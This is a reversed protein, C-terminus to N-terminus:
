NNVKLNDRGWVLPMNGKNETGDPNKAKYITDDCLVIWRFNNKTEAKSITSVILKEVKGAGSSSNAVYINNEDVGVVIGVHTWDKKENKIGNSYYTRTGYSLVIDGPEVIDVVNTIPHARTHSYNLATQMKGPLSGPDKTYKNTVPGGAGKGEELVGGNIFAWSVFASCDMGCMYKKGKKYVKGYASVDKSLKVRTGWNRNLGIKLYDSANTDYPTGRYPVAYDLSALYLAAEVAGARTGFGAKEVREKLETEMRDWDEDTYSIETMKPKNEGFDEPNYDSYVYTTDGIKVSDGVKLAGDDKQESNLDEKETVEKAPLKIDWGANVQMIILADIEDIKGDENVDANKLGQETINKNEQKSLYGLLLLYDESDIKRDENVDGYVTKLTDEPKEVVDSKIEKVLRQIIVAAEARTVTDKPMYNNDSKGNVLGITKLAYVANKAWDAIETDDAFKTNDNTTGQLLGKHTANIYNYIIVAMAERTIKADPDFKGDGIGNVIGNAGAWNISEKYYADDKVDDFINVFNEVDAKDLRALVTVVMGRTVAGDPSFTNDSTGNFIGDEVADNVDDEYWSDEEVDEFKPPKEENEEDKLAPNEKIIIMIEDQPIAQGAETQKFNMDIVRIKIGQECVKKAELKGTFKEIEAVGNEGSVIEFLLNVKANNPTIKVKEGLKVLEGVKITLKDSTFELKKLVVEEAKKTFGCECEGKTNLKHSETIAYKAKCVKCEMLKTHQKDSDSKILLVNGTHKEEKGIAVKVNCEKCIRISKHMSASTEYRAEILKEHGKLPKLEMCKEVPKEPDEIVMFIAVDQKQTESDIVRIEIGKEYVAKAKLRGTNMDLDVKQKIIELKASDKEVFEIILKANVEKPTVSVKQKLEWIEDVKIEYKNNEKTNENVWELKEVKAPEQPTVPDQPKPEQKNKNYGCYVCMNDVFTHEKEVDYDCKKCTVKHKTANYEAYEYDHKLKEIRATDQIDGCKTCKYEKEGAVVCTAARKVKWEYTHSCVDVVEQPKVYRCDECTNYKLIHKSTKKFTCGNRSCTVEHNTADKKIYKYSHGLAAGTTAGCKVCKKPSTCTASAYSHVCGKQYGCDRCKNNADFRHNEITETENGCRTCKIIKAHKDVSGSEYATTYNHGLPATLNTGCKICKAPEICTASTSGPHGSPAITRRSKVYSCRTCKEVQEGATTCTAAVTTETKLSHGLASGFSMSCKSCRKPSTCTAANFSHAETTGPFTTGCRTCKKISLHYTTSSITQYTYSYTHNCSIGGGEESIAARVNKEIIIENNTLFTFNSILLILMTSLLMKTFKSM